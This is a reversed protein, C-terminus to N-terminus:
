SRIAALLKDLERSIAEAAADRPAKDTEGGDRLTKKFVSLAAKADRNSLGAEDRLMAELERDSPMNKVATVGARTNMPFTVLSIEWLDAKEIKRFGRGGKETDYSEKLTQFGISLGDVIGAKMMEYAERAKAVTLLLKGTAKLGKRDESLETWMGIPQSPDHQWLLKVGKAGKAGISEAFAGPMVMDRGNDINGFMSGYGTFTAIDNEPDAFKFEADVLAGHDTAPGSKISLRTM